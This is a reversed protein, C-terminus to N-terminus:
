PTQSPRVPSHSTGSTAKGTEVVAYPFHDALRGVPEEEDFISLATKPLNRFEGNRMAWHLALLATAPLVVVSCAFLIWIVSM